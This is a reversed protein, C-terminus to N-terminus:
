LDVEIRENPLVKWRQDLEVTKRPGRPRLLVKRHPHHSLWTALPDALSVAGIQDLIFGLRQVDPLRVTAACAVLAECDMEEGLKNLVTAVNSLPGATAPYRVMDYATAEMTSVRIYGTEPQKKIVPILDIRENMHLEIRIKGVNIQRTPRDTIVQFVMPQQHAAGHLRAATLLGVYYPQNLYKMLDHIFWSAPPSGTARHELPIIVMFGRRPRVLRGKKILRRLSAEIGIDTHDGPLSVEKRTFTYRGSSQLQNVYSAIDKM